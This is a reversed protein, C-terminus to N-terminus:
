HRNKAKQYILNRIKTKRHAKWLDALVGLDCGTCEGEEAAAEATVVVEAVVEAV